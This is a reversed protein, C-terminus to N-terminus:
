TPVEMATITSVASGHNTNLLWRNVSWTLGAETVMQMKYTTASTSAVNKDLFTFAVVENFRSNTVNESGMFLTQNNTSGATGQCINTSDRVLNFRCTALTTPGGMLFSVMILVYSSSSSPTITVSLGTIDVFTGSNTTFYDTKTTSQVNRQIPNSAGNTIDSVEVWVSGHYVLAKNTDTEYIMMGENATSPRTTSTCVETGHGIVTM